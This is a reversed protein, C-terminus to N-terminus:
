SVDFNANRVSLSYEDNGLNFTRPEGGGDRTSTFSTGDLLSGVYHVTFDFRNAMGGRRPDDESKNQV